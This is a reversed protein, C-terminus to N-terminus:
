ENSVAESRRGQAIRHSIVRDKIISSESDYTGPGPSRIEVKEERIPHFTFSPSKHRDNVDYVGPGPKSM